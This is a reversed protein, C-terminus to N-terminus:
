LNIDKEMIDVVKKVSYKSKVHEKASVGLRKRLAPDDILRELKNMLDKRNNKVFVGTVDDEIIEKIGNVKSALVVCGALSAELVVSNLGEPHNAIVVVIDTKAYLKMVDAHSLRGVFKINPSHYEQKMNGLDPGDGAITVELNDHKQMLERAADLLIDVGKQKMVRGVFSITVKRSDTERQLAAKPDVQNNWEGKAKIGYRTLLHRNASESVGYYGTIKNRILRTFVNEAFQVVSNVIINDGAILPASGHEILYVPVGLKKGLKAGYLSTTYFRANVVIADIKFDVIKQELQKFTKNHRIIPFRSSFLSWVPMRFHYKNKGDRWFEKQKKDFNTSVDITRYKRSDFEEIIRNTYSEIGGVHPISFASFFAVTRM